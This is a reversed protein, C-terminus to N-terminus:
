LVTMIRYVSNDAQNAVRTSKKLTAFICFVLKQSNCLTGNGPYPKLNVFKNLFINILIAVM